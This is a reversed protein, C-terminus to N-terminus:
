LTDTNTHSEIAQQCEKLIKATKEFGIIEAVKGIFLSNVANQNSEMAKAKAIAKNYIDISDEMSLRYFAARSIKKVSNVLFEVPTTKKM